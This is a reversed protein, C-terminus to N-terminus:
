RARIGCISLSLIPTPSRSPASSTTPTMTSALRLQNGGVRIFRVNGSTNTFIAPGGRTVHGFNGGVDILDIIGDAGIGDSNVQFQTVATGLTMQGARIVGM